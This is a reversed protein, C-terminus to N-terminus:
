ECLQLHEDCHIDELSLRCCEPFLARERGSIDTGLDQKKWSCTKQFFGAADGMAAAPQLPALLAYFRRSFRSGIELYQILDEFSDPSKITFRARRFVRRYEVRNPIVALPRVVQFHEFLDAAS